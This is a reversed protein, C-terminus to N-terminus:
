VINHERDMMSMSDTASSVIGDLREQSERLSQEAQKRDTIDLLTGEVYAPRGSEDCVNHVSEHVWRIGGDKRVIRYERDCGFGPVTGVKETHETALHLDDPHVVRDWRLQEEMLEDATYGTIAEVEGHFFVARFDMTGRFAIGHFHEVFSRYRAESDRLAEEARKRTTIDTDTGIIRLPRGASDREMARGRGLLWRWEGSKHRIRFEARYEEAAGTLHGVMAEYLIPVDDPHIISGHEEEWRELEGREYGTLKYWLDSRSWKHESLRLDWVEDSRSCKHEPLRLDWVGDSTADLALALREESQRLADEARRRETIDRAIVVLRTEGDARRYIKGTSEFFRWTGDAHRLRHVVETSGSDLAEGLARTVSEVDDPHIPDLASTGLYEDIKWGLVDHFNPSLYLIRAEPSLEGVLDHSEEVLARHREESERLEATRAEVRQELERNTQRLASNYRRRRVAMAVILWGIVLASGMMLALFLPQRHLPLPLEFTIRRQAPASDALRNRAQVTLSHPGVAHALHASRELSWDSWAGDDVRYRTEIDEPSILGERAVARWRLTASEKQITPEGVFIQLPVSDLLNRDLIAMGNGLTGIYVRDQTPLIPWLSPHGIGQATSISYCRDGKIRLVGGPYTAWIGGRPDSRVDRIQNIALGDIAAFYEPSGSRLTGLGDWENGFWLVNSEDVALTWINALRLGNSPTWHTWEGAQWRSLGGFTGFWLEGNLGEAFAYVRNHILGDATTWHVFKGDSYVAAGTGEMANEALATNLGLFWPRGRRDIRVKHRLGPLGERPGFHEWSTGDFRFAGEYSWGSSVWVNGDRDQALGATHRVDIDNIRSFREVPASPSRIEIGDSTAIWIRGDSAEIIENVSDKSGEAHNRWYEWFRDTTRYLFVGSHSAIWLDGNSGFQLSRVGSFQPPVPNLEYWSGKQRVHVVGSNTVAIVRGDADMALAEIRGFEVPLVMRPQHGGRWEWLGRPPAAHEIWFFGEADIRPEPDAQDLREQPGPVRRWAGDGWMELTWAIRGWIESESTGWQTDLAAPEVGRAGRVETLVGDVLTSWIGGRNQIDYGFLLLGTNHSPAAVLIRQATADLPIPVHQLGHRDGRYLDGDITVLIGSERDPIIRRCLKKPIGEALGMAYWAFGDYWALGAATAAWITGDRSECVDIVRNSPLGEETTFHSWRWPETFAYAEGASAIGRHGSSALAGLLLARMVLSRPSAGLRRAGGVTARPAQGSEETVQDECDSM